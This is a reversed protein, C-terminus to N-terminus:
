AASSKEPTPAAPLDITFTTGEGPRSAVWICGGHDQIIGFSVSLGLGTGIGTPKTTFFPDFVRAFDNREIGKGTDSVAILLREETEDPRGFVRGSPLTADAGHRRRLSLRLHAVGSADQMAHCANVVLNLVVQALQGEDGYVFPPPEVDLNKTLSVKKLMKQHTVIALAREIARRVDLLAKRGESKRSFSLL